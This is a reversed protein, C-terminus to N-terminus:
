GYADVIGNEGRLEMADVDGYCHVALSWPVRVGLEQWLGQTQLM